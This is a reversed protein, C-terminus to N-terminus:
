YAVAPPEEGVALPSTFKAVNKDPYGGDGAEFGVKVKVIKGNIDEIAVDADEAIGCAVGLEKVQRNFREEAEVDSEDKPFAIYRTIVANGTNDILEGTSRLTIKEDILKYRVILNDGTDAKNRKVEVDTIAYYVGDSVVPIGLPINKLPKTNLKM